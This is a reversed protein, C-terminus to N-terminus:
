QTEVIHGEKSFISIVASLNEKKIMIYDTEYTSIVFVPIKSGALPYILLSLIGTESFNLPGKIKICRWGNESLIGAPVIGAITVLSLEDGARTVSLFPSKLAWDPIGEEPSLRSVALLEKLLTLTLKKM